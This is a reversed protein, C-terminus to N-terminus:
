FTTGLRFSFSQTVDTTAKSINQSLVFLMPGLPSTWSTQVGTSSRIKDSNNNKDYDVEWLNAVDFFLGVDTKTSEPLLNPLKLELNSAFAYNGGIHSKGDKPGVRGQEFGRLKSGPIFIRKSLRVNKDELGNIASGYVKFSGIYDPSFSKYKSFAYTNKIFPSDAYLPIVQSFASVYGSTPDYVRDRNDLSVTYNFSLDSFTGKQKQLSESATKEVKLTDTAFSISPALYVNKYQEFKTGVATTTVNNKFGSDPKDNTSNEIYYYIANGSFKYNPDTVQINGTFNTKSVNMATVVNIGKGLWNNETVSFALSGGNTGIGAGASIEGTPKEEVTIEIIKQDKETGALVNKKVDGFINRAKIKAISQDLKLKNFPDGEDLLLESRIVSEDTVSNGFINVKEVLQKRGEYINLQIEITEGEIIENVSHEIFQLENNAILLDLEDLLKKVKFPSYYKGIIKKYNKELPLFIKKELVENVNTTIKSIKYRNGANITYTLITSNNRSVEANSSIIQVDYYGVSKYYNTLLRKDLETNNYSLFTNKSLVKWFKKEESVIIDRLRKEKIKKDGNFNIKSINTKEKKEVLYILNVRNNDFKEIKAEVNSFNFGISSYIKKITSIDEAVMREVFSEKSKLKLTELIKSKLKTNKEGKLDIFNIVSYEKVEISLIGNNLTIKVDEFFNTEYLNKLIKDVEFSSYDKNLQIGGYVKLTEDSIRINGSFQLKKVVEASLNFSTFLFILVLCRFM